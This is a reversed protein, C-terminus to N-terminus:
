QQFITYNFMPIIKEPEIELEIVQKAGLSYGESKIKITEDPIAVNDLNAIDDNLTFSVQYLIKTIKKTGSPAEAFSFEIKPFLLEPNGTTAETNWEAASLKNPNKLFDVVTQNDGQDDIGTPNSLTLVGDVIQSIFDKDCVTSGGDEICEKASYLTKENGDEDKGTIRWRVLPKGLNIPTDNDPIKFRFQVNDLVNIGARSISEVYEAKTKWFEINGDQFPTEINETPSSATKEEEPPPNTGPSITPTEEACTGNKYVLESPCHWYCRSHDDVSPASDAYQLSIESWEACQNNEVTECRQEVYRVNSGDKWHIGSTLSPVYDGDDCQIFRTEFNCDADCGSGSLGNSSGLDCDEPSEQFKDGCTVERQCIASNENWHYGNATDCEFFCPANKDGNQWDIETEWNCSKTSENWSNCTQTQHEGFISNNPPNGFCIETASAAGRSAFTCTSSCGSVNDGNKYIDNGATEDYGADCQEGQDLTGNGCPCKAPSINLELWNATKCQYPNTPVSGTFAYYPECIAVYSKQASCSTINENKLTANSILVPLDTSNKEWLFYTPTNCTASTTVKWKWQISTNTAIHEDATIPCFDNPECIMSPQDTTGINKTHYGTDCEWQCINRSEKNPLFFDSGGVPHTPVTFTMYYWGSYLYLPDTVWGTGGTPYNTWHASRQPFTNGGSDKLCKAICQNLYPKVNKQGDVVACQGSKFAEESLCYGNQVYSGGGPTYGGSSSPSWLSGPTRCCEHSGLDTSSICPVCGNASLKYGDFCTDALAKPVIMKGIGSDKKELIIFNFILILSVAFSAIKEFFSRKKFSKNKPKKM